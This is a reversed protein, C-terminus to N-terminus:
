YKFSTNSSDCIGSVGINNINPTYSGCSRSLSSDSSGVFANYVVSLFGYGSGSYSSSRGNNNYKDFYKKASSRSGSSSNSCFTNTITM